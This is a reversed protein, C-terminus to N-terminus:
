IQSLKKVIKSFRESTKSLIIELRDGLSQNKYKIIKSRFHKKVELYTNGFKELVHMGTIVIYVEFEKRTKLIKILSKLKGFDARTTTLFSVKKKNKIFKM